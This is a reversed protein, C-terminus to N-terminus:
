EGRPNEVAEEGAVGDDLILYFAPLFSRDILLLRNGQSDTVWLRIELKGDVAEHNVDLLYFLTKM